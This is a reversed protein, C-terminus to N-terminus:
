SVTIDFSLDEIAEKVADGIDFENEMFHEIRLDALSEIYSVASMNEEIKFGNTMYREVEHKAIDAVATSFVDTYVINEMYAVVEENVRKDIAESFRSHSLLEKAFTEAFQIDSIGNTRLKALVRSAIDDLLADLLSPTTLDTM